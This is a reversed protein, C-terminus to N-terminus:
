QRLFKSRHLYRLPKQAFWPTTAAQQWLQKWNRDRLALHQRRSALLHGVSHM